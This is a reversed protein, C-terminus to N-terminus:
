GARARRLGPTTKCLPLFSRQALHLCDSGDCAQMQLHVDYACIMHVIRVEMAATFIYTEFRSTIEDLFLDLNPRKNVNVLDGDPLNIRFSECTSWMVPEEHRGQQFSATPPRDEYQRYKDVMQDSLFQSHILCEDMDLVVVLDSKKGGRTQPDEGNTQTSPEGNLKNPPADEATMALGNTHSSGMVYRRSSMSTLQQEMMGARLRRGNADGGGNLRPKAAAAAAGNLGNKRRSVPKQGGLVLSARPAPRKAMGAGLLNSPVGGGGGNLNKRRGWKDLDLNYANAGVHGLKRRRLGRISLLATQLAARQSAAAM